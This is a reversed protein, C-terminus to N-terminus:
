VNNVDSGGNRLDIIKAPIERIIEASFPDLSYVHLKDVVAIVLVRHKQSVALLNMKWTELQNASM